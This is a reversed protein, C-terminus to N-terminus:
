RREPPYEKVEANVTARSTRYWARTKLEHHTRPSLFVHLEGDVGRWKQIGRVGECVHLVPRPAYLQAVLDKAESDLLPALTETEWGLDPFIPAQGDAVMCAPFEPYACAVVRGDPRVEFGAFRLTPESM